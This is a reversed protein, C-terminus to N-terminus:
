VSSVPSLPNRKLYSARITRFMNTVGPEGLQFPVSDVVTSVKAKDVYVLVEGCLQPSHELARAAYCETECTSRTSFTKKRWQFGEDLLGHGTHDGFLNALAYKTVLQESHKEPAGFSYFLSPANNLGIIGCTKIDALIVILLLFDISPDECAWLAGEAPGNPCKKRTSSSWHSSSSGRRVPRLLLQWSNNSLVHMGLVVSLISLIEGDEITRFCILPYVLPSVTPISQSIKTATRNNRIQIQQSHLLIPLSL